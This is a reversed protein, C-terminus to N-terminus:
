NGDEEGGGRQVDRSCGWGVQGMEDLAVSGAPEGFDVQGVSQYDHGVMLRVGVPHIQPRQRAVSPM